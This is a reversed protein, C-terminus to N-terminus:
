TADQIRVEMWCRPTPRGVWEPDIGFTSKGSGYPGVISLAVGKGLGVSFIEIAKTASATPIYGVIRDSDREINASAHPKAPVGVVRSLPM